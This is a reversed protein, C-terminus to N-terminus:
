SQPVKDGNARFVGVPLDRRSLFLPLFSTIPFIHYGAKFLSHVVFSAVVLQGHIGADPIQDIHM